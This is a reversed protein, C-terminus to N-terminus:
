DTTIIPEICTYHLNVNTNLTTINNYYHISFNSMVHVTTTVHGHCSNRNTALNLYVITFIVTHITVGNSSELLTKQANELLLFIHVLKFM